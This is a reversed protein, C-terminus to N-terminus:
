IPLLEADDMSFSKGAGLIIHDQVNVGLLKGAECIRRTIEIDADSPAPDGSPHNHVMFINVASDMIAPKFIDRPKIVCADISGIAIQYRDIEALRVNTTVVWFEERSSFSLEKFSEAVLDPNNLIKDKPERVLWVLDKTFYAM